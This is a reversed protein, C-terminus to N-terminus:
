RGAAGDPDPGTPELFRETPGKVSVKVHRLHDGTSAPKRPSRPHEDGPQNSATQNPMTPSAVITM